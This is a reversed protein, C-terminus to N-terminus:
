QVIVKLSKIIGDKGKVVFLYTGANVSLDVKTLKGTVQVNKVLTGAETYITIVVGALAAEDMNINVFVPASKSAPNPYVTIAQSGNIFESGTNPDPEVPKEIITLICSGEMVNYWATALTRATIVVTGAKIATIKGDYTVEAINPDSSSYVVQLGVSTYADAMLVDGVYLTPLQPFYVVPDIREVTLWGNIYTITYNPNTGGSATIPYIGPASSQTATTTVALNAISAPTDAGKLADFTVTFTPNPMGYPRTVDNPRITLPAPDITYTAGLYLNTAADFNVGTLANISITYTGANTPVTASGNYLVTIAGLGSYAANLTIASIPQPAGNYTANYTLNYDLMSALLVSKQSVPIEYGNQANFTSGATGIWVQIVGTLAQGSTNPVVSFTYIDGAPTVTYTIWAPHNVYFNLGSTSPIASTITLTLDEDGGVGPFVLSTPSLTFLNKIVYTQSVCVEDSECYETYFSVCYNYTGGDALVDVYQLDTTQDILVGDRYINFKSNPIYTISVDDLFLRNQDTCNYHRFAIYVTEGEYASLDITRKQWGTFSITETFLPVPDFDALAATQTSIFVGYHENPKNADYPGVYFTLKSNEPLAIAPTILWNDPTLPITQLSASYVFGYQRQAGLGTSHIWRNGDSDADINGWSAPLGASFDEKFVDREVLDAPTFQWSLTVDPGTISSTLNQPKADCECIFSIDACKAESLNAGSNYQATVCYNYTGTAFLDDEYTFVTNPLTALTIGDRKVVFADPTAYVFPNVWEPNTSVPTVLEFVEGKNMSLEGTSEAFDPLNSFSDNSLFAPPALMNSCPEVYGVIAWNYNFAGLQSLTTWASNYYMVNGKGEVAPGPDMSFRNAAAATGTVVIGIWLDEYVNIDIPTTLTITHWGGGNAHTFAQDYIVREPEDGRAGAYIRLAYTTNATTVNTHTAFMVRTLKTGLYKVLDDKTFRHAMIGSQPNLASASTLASHTIIGERFPRDWNLTVKNIYLNANFNDVPKYPNVPLETAASACVPDSENAGYVAKVCYDYFGPQMNGDLYSLTTTSVNDIVVGDRSIKYGTLTPPTGAQVITASIPWTRSAVTTWTTGNLYLNTKGNIVGSTFYPQALSGSTAQRNVRVGIWLDSYIDIAVPTTLTIDMLQSTGTAPLGTTVNQQYILTGPTIGNGGQWLQITFDRAAALLAVSGTWFQVKTIECGSMYKMDSHDFRIAHTISASSVSTNSPTGTAPKYTAVGGSYPAEWTVTVDDGTGKAKVNLPPNYANVAQLTKLEICVGESSFGSAYEASVCYSYTTGSALGTDEYNTVNTEGIKVGDRFVNYKVVAPAVLTPDEATVPDITGGKHASLNGSRTSNNDSFYVEQKTGNSSLIFDPSPPSPNGSRIYFSTVFNTPFDPDTPDALADEFLSWEGNERIWNRGPLLPGEDFIMAGTTTVARDYLEVGVLYEKSADITYPSTLTLAQLGSTRNTWAQDRVLVTDGIANGRIEWIQARAFPAATSTDYRYFRIQTIEFGDMGKLQEPGWLHGAFFTTPQDFYVYFTAGGSFNMWGDNFPRTWSLFAKDLSTNGRLDIPPFCFSTSGSSVTVTATAPASETFEYFATVGYTYTGNNVGIHTYTTTAKNNITYLLIGDRYVKYGEVAPHSPATWTLVVNGSNEVAQLSLVPDTPGDLFKFSVTNGVETIETLPKAIPQTNQWTFMTPTTKSTFSRKNTSGPFPTGGSNISGYSSVVANPIAVISSAVVPYMQQPHGTNSARGNLANQHVHWILLGHGPVSTDFGTQQRNELVYMEGNDNAKITYAVPNFASNAMNTVATYSTLNIPTVWEYLIKQFMNIHAPQRGSDNWSGGAQLCWNGAGTYDGGSSTGDTDYYDPCGFVHNM